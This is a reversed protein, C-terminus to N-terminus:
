AAKDLFLSVQYNHQEQLIKGVAEADKTANRLKSIGSTYENIGIVVALSQNFGEM